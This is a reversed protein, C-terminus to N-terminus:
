LAGLYSQYKAVELADYLLHIEKVMSFALSARAEMGGFM